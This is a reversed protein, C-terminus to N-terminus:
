TGKAAPLSVVTSGWQGGCFNINYVIPPTSETNSPTLESLVRWRASRENLVQADIGCCRGDTATEVCRVGDRELM